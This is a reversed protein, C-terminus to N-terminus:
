LYREVIPAAVGIRVNGRMAKAVLCQGEAHRVASALAAAIEPTIEKEVRLTPRHEIARVALAGNEIEVEIRSEVTIEKVELARFGLGIGLTILFCSAAAGLLLEEPNTGVGIGRLETPVSFSTELGRAKLEGKGGFSGQWRGKVEFTHTQTM